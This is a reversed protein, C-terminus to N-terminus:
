YVALGGSVAARWLSPIASLSRDLIAEIAGTFSTPDQGADTAVKVDVVQPRNVPEGIRSVLVCEAGAIGPVGAVLDHAIRGAGVQYLKGVHSMPNKGPASEMSMPRYPTILGNARNGRGAQGDDGSEASTGTVALYLRGAEPDDATNVQVETELGGVEHATELALTRVQEVAHRYAPVGPLERDVLACAVTLELRHRRRIGLVKVDEGIEPHLLKTEPANLRREVARVVRELPTEPAYGVGVSTDNALPVAGPTGPLLATLAESGPRTLCYVSVHRVPDLARFHERLWARSGEVAIEQVPVRAGQHEAATRGALYIQIPALVEGGGFAPRASGGVLLVKDVNHHLVQDFHDLCYRTLGLSFREALADCITDPHGLGKREVVEVELDATLPSRIPGIRLDTGAPM